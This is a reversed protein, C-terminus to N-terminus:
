MKYPGSLEWHSSLYNPNPIFKGVPKPILSDKELVWEIEFCGKVDRTDIKDIFAVERQRKTANRPDDMKAKTDSPIEGSRKAEEFREYQAETSNEVDITNLGRPNIVYLYSKRTRWSFEKVSPAKDKSAGMYPYQQLGRLFVFRWLQAYDKSERAFGREFPEQYSSLGKRNPVPRSPDEIFDTRFVFGGEMTEPPQYWNVDRGKFIEVQRGLRKLIELRYDGPLGIEYNDLRKGMSNLLRVGMAAYLEDEPTKLVSSVVDKSFYRVLDAKEKDYPLGSDRRRPPKGDGGGAAVTPHLEETSSLIEQSQEVLYALDGDGTKAEAGSTLERVRAIKEGLILNFRNIAKQYESPNEEAISLYSSYRTVDAMLLEIESKLELPYGKDEMVILTGLDM